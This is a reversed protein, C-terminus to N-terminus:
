SSQIATVASPATGRRGYRIVPEPLRSRWAHTAPDLRICRGSFARDVLGLQEQVQDERVVGLLDTAPRSKELVSQLANLLTSKLSLKSGPNESFVKPRSLYFTLSSRDHFRVTIELSPEASILYAPEDYM